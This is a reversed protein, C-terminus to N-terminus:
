RNLDCRVAMGRLPAGNHHLGSLDSGASSSARITIRYSGAKAPHGYLMAIGSGASSFQVGPPLGPVYGSNSQTPSESLVPSPYGSVTVTFDLRHGLRVSTSPSSTFKPRSPPIARVTFDAPSSTSSKTSLDGGYTAIVPHAGPTDYRVTCTATYRDSGSLHFAGCGAITTGNDSVNLTGSPRVPSFVHALIQEAHGVVM